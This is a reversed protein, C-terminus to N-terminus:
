TLDAGFLYVDCTAATGQALSLSLYLTSATLATGVGAASITAPLLVTASTLATYVQAAAVVPVGGKATTPYVGGAATTLSASCNTVYIGTLLYKTVAANISIAQDAVSNFNAGTLRGLRRVMGACTTAVAGAASTCDGTLAPMRAAAVNGAVLDTASGSTAIAAPTAGGLKSVTIVGANTMAADGSMAAVAAQNSGDGVWMSGNALAPSVPAYGLAATIQASTVTGSGPNIQTRGGISWLVMSILVIASLGVIIRLARMLCGVCM